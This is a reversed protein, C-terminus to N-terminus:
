EASKSPNTKSEIIKQIEAAREYQEREVYRELRRQLRDVPLDELALTRPKGGDATEDADYRYSTRDLVEATTFIPAGTRLALAVADSTRADLDTEIGDQRLHLTSSFIGDAFHDILVSELEIGFAHFVSTLLDHTLPRPPVVNELRVAISQAEAVGVVIPIRRSSEPEELLLAYAGAAVQSRSIGVVDLKIKDNDM